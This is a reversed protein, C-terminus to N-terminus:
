RIQFRVGNNRILIADVPLDNALGRRQNVVDRIVAGVALAVEIERGGRHELRISREIGASVEGAFVLTERDSILARVDYLLHKCTSAPIEVRRNGFEGLLQRDM